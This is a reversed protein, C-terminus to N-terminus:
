SSVPDSAHPEHGAASTPTPRRRGEARAMLDALADAPDLARQSPATGVPPTGARSTSVERARLARDTDVMSTVGDRGLGRTDRATIPQNM